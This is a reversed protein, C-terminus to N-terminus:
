ETGNQRCLSQDYRIGAVLADNQVLHLRRGDLLVISTSGSISSVVLIPSNGHLAITAFTFTSDVFGALCTNHTLYQLSLLVLCSGVKSVLYALVASPLVLTIAAAVISIFKPPMQDAAPSNFTHRREIQRKFGQQVEQRERASLVVKGDPSQAPLVLQMLPIKTAPTDGFSAILLTM